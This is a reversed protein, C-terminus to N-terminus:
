FAVPTKEMNKSEHELSTGMEYAGHTTTAAM